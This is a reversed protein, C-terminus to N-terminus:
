RNDGSGHLVGREKRSFLKDINSQAVDDMNIGLMECDHVLKVFIAVLDNLVLVRKEDTLNRGNDRISKKAIEAIRGLPVLVDQKPVRYCDMAFSALETFNDVRVGSTVQEAFDSASFGIDIATNAIYWLVDGAEKRADDYDITLGFMILKERFEGYEGVLGFVPYYFRCTDKPYVAVSRAQEFYTTINM